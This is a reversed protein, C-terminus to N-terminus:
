LDINWGGASATTQGTAVSNVTRLDEPWSAEIPASRTGVRNGIKAVKHYGVEAQELHRRASSIKKAVFTRKALFFPQLLELRVKGFTRYIRKLKPLFDLKVMSEERRRDSSSFFQKVHLSRKTVFNFFLSTYHYIPPFFCYFSFLPHAFFFSLEFEQSVRDQAPWPSSHREHSRQISYWKASRQFPRDTALEPIIWPM